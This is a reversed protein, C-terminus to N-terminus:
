LFAATYKTSELTPDTGDTTFYIVADQTATEMTVSVEGENQTASATFVVASAYKKAVEVVEVDAKCSAFAFVMATGLLISVTKLLNKM